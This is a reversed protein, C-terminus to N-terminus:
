LAHVVMIWALWSTAPTALAELQMQRHELLFIARAILVSTQLCVPKTSTLDKAYVSESTLLYFSPNPPQSAHTQM